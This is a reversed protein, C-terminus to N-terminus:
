LHSESFATEILKKRLGTDPVYQSVAEDITGLLLPHLEVTPSIYGLAHLMRLTLVEEFVGEQGEHARTLVTHVEDFLAEHPVEGQVLRRLVRIVNRVLARADRTTQISYANMHPETGTIRWGTKGHVLTVRVYSFEQLAFRQKSREERVSKATAYLMGAERTFLLFSRDATRSARSGCVLADTIYTKYSM